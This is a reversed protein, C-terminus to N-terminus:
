AATGKDFFENVMDGTPSNRLEKVVQQFVEPPETFVPSGKVKERFQKAPESDMEFMTQKVALQGIVRQIVSRGPPEHVDDKALMGIAEFCYNRQDQTDLWMVMDSLEKLTWIESSTGILRHISAAIQSPRLYSIPRAYAAGGEDTAFGVCDGSATFCPVNVQIKTLRGIWAAWLRPPMTQNTRKLSEADAVDADFHRPRPTRVNAVPM